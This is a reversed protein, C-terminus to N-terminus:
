LVAAGRYLLGTCALYGQALPCLTTAGNDKNDSSTDVSYSFKGLSVSNYANDTLSEIGGNANIYDAHACVAKYVRAKLAGSVTEVAYGSFAIANNVIDVSRSLLLSLEEYTGDFTGKWEDRYFDIMM